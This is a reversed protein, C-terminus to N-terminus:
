RMSISPSPIARQRCRSRRSQPRCLRPPRPRRRAQLHRPLPIAPRATAPVAVAQGPAAPKPIGPKVIAPQVSAPKAPAAEPTAPQPAAPMAAPQPAGSKTAGPGFARLDTTDDHPAAAAGSLAPNSAVDPRVGTQATPQAAVATTELPLIANIKNSSAEVATTPKEPASQPASGGASDAAPNRRSRRQRASAPPPIGETPPKAM